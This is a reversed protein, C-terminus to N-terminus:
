TTKFNLLTPNEFVVKSLFEQTMIRPVERRYDIKLEIVKSFVGALIEENFFVEKGNFEFLEFAQSFTDSVMFLANFLTEYIM